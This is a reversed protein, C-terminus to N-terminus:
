HSAFSIISKVPMAGLSFPFVEQPYRVESFGGVFVGKLYPFPDPRVVLCQLAAFVASGKKRSKLFAFPM